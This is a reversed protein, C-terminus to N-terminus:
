STCANCPRLLGSGRPEWMDAKWQHRCCGYFVLWARVGSAVRWVEVIVRTNYLVRTQLGVTCMRAQSVGRCRVGERLM